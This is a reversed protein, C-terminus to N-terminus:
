LPRPQGCTWGPPNRIRNSMYSNAESQAVLGTTFPVWWEGFEALDCNYEIQIQIMSHVRGALSGYPYSNLFHFYWDDSCPESGCHSGPPNSQHEMEWMIHTSEHLM